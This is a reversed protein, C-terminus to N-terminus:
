EGEGPRLFRTGNILAGARSLNVWDVESHDAIYHELERLDGVLAPSSPVTGGSGCEVQLILGRSSRVRGQTVGEAHTRAGPFSFDVGALYIHQHGMSQALDVATHTVSGGSFLVGRKLEPNLEQYIPYQLYTVIRPGPWRALIEPHVGASYVLPIAGFEQMDLADFHVGVNISGDIVVAYDPHLVAKQLPLLATTVSILTVSDRNARIWGARAALTPGPVAVIAKGRPKSGFLTAVDRDAQILQHNEIIQRREREKVKSLHEAQFAQNLAQVISEKLLNCADSAAKLAGASVACPLEVQSRTSGDVLSVREDDLWAFPERSLLERDLATNLLVVTLEQLDPRSLLEEALDGYALGYVTASATGHPVTSAQLKAESTRNLCSTLLRGDVRVSNAPTHEIWELEQNVEGAAVLRSSLEPWRSEVRKLGTMIALIRRSEMLGSM